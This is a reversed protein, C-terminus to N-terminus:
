LSTLHIHDALLEFLNFRHHIILYEKRMSISDKMLRDKVWKILCNLCIWSLYIMRIVMIWLVEGRFSAKLVAGWFSNIMWKSHSFYGRNGLKNNNFHLMKNKSLTISNHTKPSTSLCINLFVPISNVKLERNNM